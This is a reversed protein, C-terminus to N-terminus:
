SAAPARCRTVSARVVTFAVCALAVASAGTLAGIQNSGSVKSNILKTANHVPSEQSAGFAGDFRLTLRRRFITGFFTGGGAAASQTTPPLWSHCRPLCCVRGVQERLGTASKVTLIP